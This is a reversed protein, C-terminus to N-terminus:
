DHWFYSKNKQKTNGKSISWWEIQSCSLLSQFSTCVIFNTVLYNSQILLVESISYYVNLGLAHHSAACCGRAQAVCPYQVKSWVAKTGINKLAQKPWILAKWSRFCSLFHLHGDTQGDTLVDKQALLDVLYADFM